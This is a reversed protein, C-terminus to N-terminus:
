HVVRHPYRAVMEFEIRHFNLGFESGAGSKGIEIVPFVGQKNSFTDYKIRSICIQSLVTFYSFCLRLQLVLRAASPLNHPETLGGNYVVLSYSHHRGPTPALTGYCVSDTRM